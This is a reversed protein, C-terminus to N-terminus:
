RGSDTKTLGGSGYLSGSLTVTYNNTDITANTNFQFSLVNAFSGTAQLTGGGFTFTGSGLGLSVTSAQLLGGNLNYIGMSGPNAGLVLRTTVANTGGTQTFTATGLLGVYETDAALYGTGGLLYTGNGSGNYGIYLTGPTTGSFVMNTGGTQTFTGAGSYGVTENEAALSGGSLFYSGQGGSVVGLQLGVNAAGLNVTGGSQTFLGTGGSGVYCAAASLSGGTVSSASGSSISSILSDTYVGGIGLKVTGSGTISLGGELNITANTNTAAITGNALSVPDLVNGWGGFGLTGSLTLVTGYTHLISSSPVSFSEFASSSASNVIVLSNTGVSLTLNQANVVTAQSFDVILSNDNSGLLTGSVNGGDFTGTIALGGGSIITLLDGAGGLTNTGSLIYDGHKGVSLFNTSNTGGSQTFIGSGSSAIFEQITSLSGGGLIYNGSAGSSYGLFFSGSDNNTGGSQTFTASGSYGVFEGAPSLLGGTLTYSGTSGTNNAMYLKYANNTGGSQTFSGAGYYGIYEPNPLHTDLSGGSLTYSGSAAASGGSAAAYGLYLYSAINDTGGSQTYSGQGGANYGVCLSGSLTNTAGFQTLTGSGSYGVYESVASLTGLTPSGTTSLSYTGSGHANYGLYLNGSIANSGNTETFTATGSYGLYETPAIISGGYLNYTGTGTSGSGVYLAVTVHNTGGSQAFTGHGVDGLYETGTVSLSGATLNYTGSSTTSSGGLDLLGSVTNIGLSDSLTVTGTGAYGVDETGASVSEAGTGTINLTGVGSKGVYLTAGVALGGTGAVTLTGSGATGGLVLTNCVDGTKSVTATGGNYIDATSSLTPLGGTWNGATEWSGSSVNWM